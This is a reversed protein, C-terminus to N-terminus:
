WQCLDNKSQRDLEISACRERERERMSTGPRRTANLSVNAANDSVHASPIYYHDRSLLLSQIRMPYIALEPFDHTLNDKKVRACAPGQRCELRLPHRCTYRTTVTPM